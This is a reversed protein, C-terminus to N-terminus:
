PRHTFRDFADHGVIRVHLAAINEYRVIRVATSGMQGVDGNDRWHVVLLGTFQKEECRTSGVMRLDPSDHGAAHRRKRGVKTFFALRVASAAGAEASNRATWGTPTLVDVAPSTSSQTMAVGLVLLDGSTHSPINVDQTAAGDANLLTGAAVFAM